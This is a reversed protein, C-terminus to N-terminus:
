PVPKESQKLVCRVSSSYVGLDEYLFASGSNFYFRRTEFSGNSADYKDSIQYNGMAGPLFLNTDLIRYGAAPYFYFIMDSIPAYKSPQVFFYKGCNNVTMAGNLVTYDPSLNPDIPKGYSSGGMRGNVMELPIQWQALSPVEWGPPCPNYTEDNPWPNDGLYAVGATQWAANRYYRMKLDSPNRYSIMGSQPSGSPFFGDDGYYENNKPYQTNSKGYAGYITTKHGIPIAYSYLMPYGANAANYGESFRYGTKLNRDLWYDVQGSDEDGIAVVGGRYIFIDKVSTRPSNYVLNNVVYPTGIIQLRLQRAYHFGGITPEDLARKKVKITVETVRPNIGYDNPDPKDVISSGHNYSMPSIEVFDTIQNLDGGSASVIKWPSNSKVLVKYILDTDHEMPAEICEVDRAIQQGQLESPYQLTYDLEYGQTVDIPQAYNYVGSGSIVVVRAFRRKTNPMQKTKIQLTGAGVVKIPNDSETSPAPITTEIFKDEDPTGPLYMIPGVYWEQRELSPNVHSTLVTPQLTRVYHLIPSVVLGPTHPLYNSVNTQHVEIKIKLDDTHIGEARIYGFATRFPKTSENKYVAVNLLHPNVEANSSKYLGCDTWYAAVPVGSENLEAPPVLSIDPVNTRIEATKAQREYDFEFFRKTISLYYNGFFAVENSNKDDWDSVTFVLKKDKTAAIAEEPTAYGVETIKVINIAYLHNSEFIQKGAVVNIPHKYYYSRGMYKAKFVVFTAPHTASVTINRPFTYARQTSTLGTRDQLSSTPDSAIVQHLYGKSEVNYVAWEGELTFGTADPAAQLSIAACLRGVEIITTNHTANYTGVSEGYMAFPSTPQTNLAFTKLQDYSPAAPLGSVNAVVCLLIEVGETVTLDVSVQDGVQQFTLGEHKKIFSKNSNDFEFITLSNIKNEDVSGPEMARMVVQNPQVNLSAMLRVNGGMAGNELFDKRCGVLLSAFLGISFLYKMVQYKM